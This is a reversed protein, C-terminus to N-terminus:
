RWSKGAPEVSPDVKELTGAEIDIRVRAADSTNAASFSRSTTAVLRRSLDTMDLLAGYTDLERGAADHQRRKAFRVPTSGGFRASYRRRRRSNSNRALQPDVLTKRRGLRAPAEGRRWQDNGSRVVTTTCKLAAACAAPAGIL